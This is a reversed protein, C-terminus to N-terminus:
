WFKWQIDTASKTPKNRKAKSSHEENQSEELNRKSVLGEREAEERNKEVKETCDGSSTSLASMRWSQVAWRSFGRARPVVRPYVRPLPPHTSARHSLQSLFFTLYWDKRRDNKRKAAMKSSHYDYKEDHYTVVSIKWTRSRNLKM